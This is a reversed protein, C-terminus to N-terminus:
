GRGDSIKIFTDVKRDGQSIVGRDSVVGTRFDIEVYKRDSNASNIVEVIATDKYVIFDKPLYGKETMSVSITKGSEFDHRVYLAKDADVTYGYNGFIRTYSTGSAVPNCDPYQGDKYLVLCKSEKTEYNWIVGRDSMIWKGVRGVAGYMGAPFPAAVPTSPSAPASGTLDPLLKSFSLDGTDLKYFPSSAYHFLYNGNHDLITSLYFNTNWEMGSPKFIRFATSGKEYLLFTATKATSQSTTGLLYKGNYSVSGPQYNKGHALLPAGAATLEILKLTGDSQVEAARVQNEDIFLPTNSQNFGPDNAPIINAIGNPFAASVEFTSGNAYVVIVANRYTLSCDSNVTAPVDANILLDNTAQNILHATKVSIEANSFDCKIKKEVEEGNANKQFHKVVPNLRYLKGDVLKRSAPFSQATITSKYSPILEEAYANSVFPHVVSALMDTVQRTFSSAFTVGSTTNAIADGAKLDLSTLTLAQGAPAVADTPATSNSPPVVAPTPINSGPANTGALPPNAISESGGGGGGCATLLMSAAVALPAKRLFYM